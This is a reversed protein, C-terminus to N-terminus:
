PCIEKIKGMYEKRLNGVEEAKSLCDNASNCASVCSTIQETTVGEGVACKSSCNSANISRYTNCTTVAAMKLKIENEYRTLENVRDQFCSYTGNAVGETSTFSVRVRIPVTTSVVIPINKVPTKPKIEQTPVPITTIVMATPSPNLNSSQSHYITWGGVGALTLITLAGIVALVGTM